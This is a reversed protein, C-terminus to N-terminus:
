WKVAGGMVDGNGDKLGKLVANVVKKEATEDLQFSDKSLESSLDSLAMFRLDSDASSMQVGLHRLVPAVDICCVLLIYLSIYACYASAPNQLGFM